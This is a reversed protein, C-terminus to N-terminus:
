FVIFGLYSFSFIWHNSAVGWYLSFVVSFSLAVRLLIPIKKQLNRLQKLTKGWSLFWCLNLVSARADFHRVNQTVCVMNRSSNRKYSGILIKFSKGGKSKLKKKQM